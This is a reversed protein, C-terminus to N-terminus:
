STSFTEPGDSMRMTVPKPEPLEKPLFREDQPHHYLWESASEATIGNFFKELATTGEKAHDMKGAWVAEVPVDHAFVM